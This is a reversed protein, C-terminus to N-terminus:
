ASPCSGDHVISASATTCWMAEVVHRQLVLYVMSFILVSLLALLVLGLFGAPLEVGLILM